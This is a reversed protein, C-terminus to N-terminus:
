KIVNHSIKEMMKGPMEYVFRLLMETFELLEEADPGSISPIEHTAENGKKRIHDVWEHSNPPTYHNEELFTIYSAFTKGEKAGKSVSINMLMKRCSLVTSTYANVSICNRAENYLQEIDPPLFKVNEGLIKGPVQKEISKDIFTPFNCNPCILIRAKTIDMYLEDKGINIYQKSPGVVKSCYGCAYSIGSVSKTGDWNGYLREM